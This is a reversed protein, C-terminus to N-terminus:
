AAQEPRDFLDRSAERRVYESKVGASLLEVTQLAGALLGIRKQKARLIAQQIASIRMLKTAAMAQAIAIALPEQPKVRSVATPSMPVWSGSNSPRWSVARPTSRPMSSRMSVPQLRRDVGDSLEEEIRLLGPPGSAVGADAVAERKPLAVHELV